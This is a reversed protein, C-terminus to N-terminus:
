GVVHERVQTQYSPPAALADELARELDGTVENALARLEDDAVGAGLLRARAVVLPEAQRAAELEEKPRYGGPDGTYHGVLRYTMAEVLTPGEGARARAAAQQVADAVALPDNGDVRVGPFPYASARLHQEDRRVVAATPTLESYRNNECLFVVPLDFASAFNFAEHVSGQNLAGDGLSCLAIDDRDDMKIALAAGTAIPAGGGVISNEGFFGYDPATFYASGGRGQNIGSSRGMFEAFLVDPPVGCALGWGHGRYTAFVADTARLVSRAGVPIAEQGICLHVSGVILGRAHLDGVVEEFRRITLMARYAPLLIERVSPTAASATENTM